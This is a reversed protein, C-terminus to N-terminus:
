SCPVCSYAQPLFEFRAAPIPKACAVCIGYTGEFVKLLERPTSATASDSKAHDPPLEPETSWPNHAFTLGADRRRDAACWSRSVRRSPRSHSRETPPLQPPSCREVM